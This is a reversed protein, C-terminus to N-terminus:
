HSSRSRATCRKGTEVRSKALSLWRRCSPLSLNCSVPIRPSKGATHGSGNQGIEEKGLGAANSASIQLDKSSRAILGAVTLGYMFPNARAVSPGLIAVVRENRDARLIRVAGAPGVLFALRLNSFSAAQGNTVLHAANDKSFAEAARRAMARDTRLALLKEMSLSGTENAFHGRMVALWTAEIFQFPGVATSRPNRAHNNGGSEAIMLRDLFESMTMEPTPDTNSSAAGAAPAPQALAGGACVPVFTAM